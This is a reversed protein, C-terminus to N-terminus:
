DMLIPNACAIPLHSFLRLINFESRDPIYYKNIKNKLLDNEM